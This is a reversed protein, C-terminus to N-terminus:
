MKPVGYRRILADLKRTDGSVGCKRCRYGSDNLQLAGAVKCKPCFGAYSGDDASRRVYLQQVLQHDKIVEEIKM